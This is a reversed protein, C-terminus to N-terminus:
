NQVPATADERCQRDYGMALKLEEPQLMRMMHGQISPEIYAFRDLTTITRLPRDIRQWGGSGDSGYYVILFREQVGLAEIARGARALTAEARGPKHLPSLNYRGSTDLISSAPKQRIEGTPKTVDSMSSKSCILFMRKRSQPVSFDQANFFRQQQAVYGLDALRGKFEDHKNWATMETVNEIVVWEPKFVEAFRLVEFATMRSEEDRAAAGKAVSHNTCEPSALILDIDGIESRIDRPSLKRIDKNFVHAEPFNEKYTQAAPQWIDFGAVIKVGAKQAGSSSGGAGCFLDIARVSM